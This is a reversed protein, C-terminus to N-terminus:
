VRKAVEICADQYGVLGLDVDQLVVPYFFGEKTMELGSVRPNIKAKAYDSRAFFTIKGRIARLKLLNAM